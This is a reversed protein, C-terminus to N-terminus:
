VAKNEDYEKHQSIIDVVVKIPDVILEVLNAFSERRGSGNYLRAM